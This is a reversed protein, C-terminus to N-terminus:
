VKIKLYNITKTYDIFIKEYHTQIKLVESSDEDQTKMFEGYLDSTSELINFNNSKYDELTWSYLDKNDTKVHIIGGKKIFKKYRDVFISSTIKKTGKEDKPQPDSFTLWIEDVEDSDFFHDIFEIRTRLFAVNELNEAMSTKAGRWFRHGKVDVGIYNRNPYKKALGVTYEGKGCGLELVIPNSNGFVEEGWKGKMYEGGKVIEQLPPQHVIPFTSNEKWKKLKGKGM